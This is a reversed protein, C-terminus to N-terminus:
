GLVFDRVIPKGRTKNQSFCCKPNAEELLIRQDPEM